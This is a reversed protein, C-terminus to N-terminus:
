ATAARGAGASVPSYAYRSGAGSASPAARTRKAAEDRKALPVIKAAAFPADLEAVDILHHPVKAQEAASPKATGIDLGHYVQMSDVSIIEGGLRKALHLALASKGSATAGTIYIAPASM